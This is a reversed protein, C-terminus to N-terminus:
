NSIFSNSYSHYKGKTKNSPAEDNSGKLCFTNKMADNRGLTNRDIFIRNINLQIVSFLFGSNFNFSQSSSHIARVEAYSDTHSPARM